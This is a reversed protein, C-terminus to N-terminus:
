DDIKRHRTPLNIALGTTSAGLTQTAYANFVLNKFFILRTDAGETQKFSDLLNGSRKDIGMVGIYSGGWLSRKVRLVAYNAYPDSTARSRPRTLAPLFLAGELYDEKPFWRREEVLDKQMHGALAIPGGFGFTGLRLFYLVLDRLAFATASDCALAAQRNVEVAM